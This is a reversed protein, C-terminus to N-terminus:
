VVMLVIKEISTSIMINLKLVFMSEQITFCEYVIVTFKQELKNLRVRTSTYPHLM